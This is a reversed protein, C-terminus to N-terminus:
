LSARESTGVGRLQSHAPRSQRMRNHANHKLCALPAAATSLSLQLICIVPPLLPLIGTLLRLLLMLFFRHPHIRLIIVGLETLHLQDRDPYHYFM